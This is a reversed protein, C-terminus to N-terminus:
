IMLRSAFSRLRVRRESVVSGSSEKHTDTIAHSPEAPPRHSSCVFLNLMCGSGSRVTPAVAHSGESRDWSGSEGSVGSRTSPTRSISAEKGEDEPDEEESESQFAVLHVTTKHRPSDFLNQFRSSRVSTGSNKLKKMLARLKTQAAELVKTESLVLCSRRLKALNQKMPDKTMRLRQTAKELIADKVSSTQCDGVAAARGPIMSPLGCSRNKRFSMDAHKSFRMDLLDKLIGSEVEATREELEDILPRMFDACLVMGLDGLMSTIELCQSFMIDFFYVLNDLETLVKMFQAHLAIDQLGSNTFDGPQRRGLEDCPEWKERIEDSDTQLCPEEFAVCLSSGLEEGESTKLTLEAEEGKAALEAVEAGTKTASGVLEWSTMGAVKQVGGLMENYDKLLFHVAVNDNMPIQLTLTQEWEPNHCNFCVRTSTESVKEMKKEDDNWRSVVVTIYPDIEDYCRVYQPLNRAGCVKVEVTKVESHNGDMWACLRSGHPSRLLLQLLRGCDTHWFDEMEEAVVKEFNSSLLAAPLTSKYLLGLSDLSYVCSPIQCTTPALVLAQLAYLVFHYAETRLTRMQRASDRREQLLYKQMNDLHMAVHSMTTKFSTNDWKEVIGICFYRYAQVEEICVDPNECSMRLWNKILECAVHSPKLQEEKVNAFRSTVKRRVSPEETRNQYMLIADFAQKAQPVPALAQLEDHTGSLSMMLSEPDVIFGDLHQAVLDRILMFRKKLEVDVASTVMNQIGHHAKYGATVVAAGAAAGGAMVAANMAIM